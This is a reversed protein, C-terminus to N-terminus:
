ICNFTKCWERTEKGLSVAGLVWQILPKMLGTALRHKPSSIFWVGRGPISDRKRQWAVYLRTEMCFANVHSRCKNTIKCWVPYRFIIMWNLLKKPGSYCSHLARFWLIIILIHVYNLSSLVILKALFNPITFMSYSGSDKTPSGSSCLWINLQLTCTPNASVFNSLQKIIHEKLNRHASLM